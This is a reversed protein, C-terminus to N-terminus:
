RPHPELLTTFTDRPPPVGRARRGLLHLGPKGPFGLASLGGWHPWGVSPYVEDWCSMGAKARSGFCGVLLVPFPPRPPVPVILALQPPLIKLQDRKEGKLLAPNYIHCFWMNDSVIFCNGEAEGGHPHAKAPAQHERIHVGARSFHSPHAAVAGPHPAWFWGLVSCMETMVLQTSSFSPGM